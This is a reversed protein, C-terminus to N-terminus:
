SSREDATSEGRRNDQPRGDLEDRAADVATRQQERSDDRSEEDKSALVERTREVRRDREQTM